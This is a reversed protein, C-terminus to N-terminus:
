LKNFITWSMFIDSFLSYALIYYCKSCQVGERVYDNIKDVLAYKKIKTCRYKVQLFIFVNKDHM